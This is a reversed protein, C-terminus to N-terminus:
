LHTLLLCSGAFIRLSSGGVGGSFCVPLLSLIYAVVRGYRLLAIITTAEGPSTNEKVSPRKIPSGAIQSGVIVRTMYKIIETQVSVRLTQKM